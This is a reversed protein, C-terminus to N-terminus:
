KRDIKSQVEELLKVFEPRSFVRGSEDTVAYFNIRSRGDPSAKPLNLYGGIAAISSHLWKSPDSPPTNDKKAKIKDSSGQPILMQTVKLVKNDGSSNLPAIEGHSSGNISGRTLNFIIRSHLTSNMVNIVDNETLKKNKCIKQIGFYFRNIAETIDRLIYDLVELRKNYMTTIQDSDRIMWENYNDILIAFLQYLDNIQMNIAKFRNKMIEDIYEDLSRMHEEVDDALTGWGINGSWLIHGLLVAWMRTSDVDEPKVIDPFYDTIYFFGCLLSQVMPTFEEKKVAIAITSPLHLRNKRRSTTPTEATTCIVWQDPPYNQSNVAVLEPNGSTIEGTEPDTIVPPIRSLGIVPQCKGFRRMTETFGYKCFLYHVLTTKARVQGMLKKQSKPRNYLASWLVQIATTSNNVNMFSVLRNFTVKAKNLRVFINTKTVSFIIDSLVPSITFRSGSLHMIGGDLAFPLCMYRVIEKGEFEFIYKVMYIDSRAIESFKRTKRRKILENFEEYPNCRCSRIYKLEPPFTHAVALFSSEVWQEAQRLHEVALGNSIAPNCKPTHDRILAILARDSM